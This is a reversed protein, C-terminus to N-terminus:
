GFAAGSFVYANGVPTTGIVGKIYGVKPATGM